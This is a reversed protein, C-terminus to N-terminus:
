SACRRAGGVPSARGASLMEDDVLPLFDRVTPTQGAIEDEEATRLNFATRPCAKEHGCPDFDRNGSGPTVARSRTSSPPRGGPHAAPGRTRSSTSRRRSGTRRRRGASNRQDGARPRRRRAPGLPDPRTRRPSGSRALSRPYPSTPNPGVPMWSLYRGRMRPFESLPSLDVCAFKSGKRCAFNNCYLTNRENQVKSATRRGACSGSQSEVQPRTSRPPHGCTRKVRGSAAPTRRPAVAGAHFRAVCPGPAGVPLHGSRRDTAHHHSPPQDRCDLDNPKSCGPPVDLPPGPPDRRVGPPTARSDDSATGLHPKHEPQTAIHRWPTTATQPSRHGAGTV